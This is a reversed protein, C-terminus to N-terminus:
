KARYMRLGVESEDRAGAKMEITSVEDGFFRSFLTPLRVVLAHAVTAALAVKLLQRNNNILVERRRAHFEYLELRDTGIVMKPRSMVFRNVNAVYQLDGLFMLEPGNGSKKDVTLGKQIYGFDMKLYNTYYLKWLQDQLSRAKEAKKEMSLTEIDFFKV